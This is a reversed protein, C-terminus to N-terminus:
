STQPPGDEARTEEEEARTEEEEARTEEEEVEGAPGVGEGAGDLLELAHCAADMEAAKITRGRGRVRTEEWVAEVYFTRSHPPGETEVVEYTPMLRREAQLREQLVTKYDAAADTVSEPTVESLDEELASRVFRAADDFGGDLFVAAVVAEFADELLGKNRRGGAKEEGRGVRLYEGLGMRRAASSLTRTNVLVHKMRSLDGESAEPYSEFLTHAIVLGLVSDGVFELVENHLLRARREAGAGVSEYAWSRHTLARELLDRDRFRYGIRGELAPLDESAGGEPGKTVEDDGNTM